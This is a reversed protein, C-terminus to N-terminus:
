NSPAQRPPPCGCSFDEALQPLARLLVERLRDVNANMVEVVEEHTLLTPSIGAGFNTVMAITTYCIGLERALVVEPVATMGVVDGGLLRYARIEAATEFRPGETTVYVGGMILSVDALEGAMQLKQRSAQCYPETMDTHVVQGDSGDFFTAPRAKTFDLFQDVLVMSGPGMALNLSGVAATAVARRVGLAKLAWVNARYNVRHPPVSHGLGHRNLFVVSQSAATKLHGQTIRAQGYPTEITKEKPDHLWSPDYVGTGGIVAVTNM